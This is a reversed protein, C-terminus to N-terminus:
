MKKAFTDIFPEITLIKGDGDAEMKDKRVRLFELRSESRNYFCEVIVRKLSHSEGDERGKPKQLDIPLGTVTYETLDCSTVMGNNGVELDVSDVKKMKMYGYELRTSNQPSDKLNISNMHYDAFALIIGEKEAYQLYVDDDILTSPFMNTFTSLCSIRISAHQVADLVKNSSYFEDMSKFAIDVDYDNSVQVVTTFMLVPNVGETLRKSEVASLGALYRHRYSSIRCIVNLSVTPAVLRYLNCIDNPNKFQKTIVISNPVNGAYRGTDYFSNNKGYMQYTTNHSKVLVAMIETIIIYYMDERRGKEDVQILELQLIVDNDFPLDVTLNFIDGSCSKILLHGDCYLGTARVGDWKPMIFLSYTNETLGRKLTSRHRNYNIFNRDFSDFICDIREKQVSCSNVSLMCKTVLSYGVAYVINRTLEVLTENIKVDDLQRDFEREIELYYIPNCKIRSEITGGYVSHEGLSLRTAPFPLDLCTGCDFIERCKNSSRVPSDGVLHNESKEIAIWEDEKIQNEVSEKYTGTLFLLRGEESRTWKADESTRTGGSNMYPVQAEHCVNVTKRDFSSCVEGSDDTTVCKRYKSSQCQWDSYLDVNQRRPRKVSSIGIVKDRILEYLNSDFVIGVTCEFETNIISCM